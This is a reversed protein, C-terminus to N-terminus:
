EVEAFRPEEITEEEPAKAVFYVGGMVMISCVITKLSLPTGNILIDFAISFVVYTINLGM